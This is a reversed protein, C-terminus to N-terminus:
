HTSDKGPVTYGDPDKFNHPKLIKDSPRERRIDLGFKAILAYINIRKALNAYHDKHFKMAEVSTLLNARFKTLM